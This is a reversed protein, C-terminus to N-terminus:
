GMSRLEVGYAEKVKRELEDYRGVERLFDAYRKIFARAKDPKGKAPDFVSLFSECGYEQLYRKSWAEPDRQYEVARERNGSHRKLFNEDIDVLSEANVGIQSLREKGIHRGGQERSVVAVLNKVEARKFGLMPIWGRVEGEEARYCSSGETLLDAVHIVLYGDLGGFGFVRAEVGDPVPLFSTM